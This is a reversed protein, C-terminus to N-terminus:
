KSKWELVKESLVSLWLTRHCGRWMSAQAGKEVVVWVGVVWTEVVPVEGMRGRAVHLM